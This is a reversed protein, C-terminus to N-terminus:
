LWERGNWDRHVGGHGRELECEVPVDLVTGEAMCPVVIGHERFASMIAEDDDFESLSEQETDWGRDRLAGILVSCVERKLDDGAGHEILKRAVPEFVDGGSAWGM